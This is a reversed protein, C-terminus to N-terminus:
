WTYDQPPNPDEQLRKILQSISPHTLCERRIADLWNPVLLPLAFFSGEDEYQRSWADVVVNEKGKKYTIDYDYGLIKTVWKRQELSSLRQELFYKLSHHNM